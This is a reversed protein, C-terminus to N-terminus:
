ARFRSAQWLYRAGILVGAAVLIKGLGGDVGWEERRYVGEVEWGPYPGHSLDLPMREGNERYVVLYVHSFADPQSPNAAVTVFRVDKGLAILLSAGYMSFDDCDGARSCNGGGGCMVSLDRPRILAEVIPINTQSQLSATTINDPVFGVRGKVWQFVASEPDTNPYLRLLSAADRQVEPSTADERAYKGMLQITQQVQGDADDPLETVEYRIPGGFGPHNM